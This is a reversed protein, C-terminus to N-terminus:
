PLWFVVVRVRANLWGASTNVRGRFSGGGTPVVACSAGDLADVSTWLKPIAGFGVYCAVGPFVGGTQVPPTDVTTSKTIPIEFVSYAVGGGAPGASGQPGVPGRNAKRLLRDYEPESQSAYALGRCRRCRYLAGGYLVHAGRGGTPTREVPARAHGQILPASKAAPSM